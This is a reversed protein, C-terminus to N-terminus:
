SFSIVIVTVNDKGGAENAADVLTCCLRDLKSKRGMIELIQKESIMGVLGDTCLLLRDGVRLDFARAEPLPEGEMGVSRTVRGRAPHIRAEEETIEGSDILLQVISHDKTLRSLRGDRLLYARSDGMHGILAKADRILAVVITAGMGELGVQGETEKHVQLSLKAIADVMRHRAKDGALDDIDALNKRLMLPLTEVVIKSALEGAFEGGLGDSIIFLGRGPDAMWNDENRERVRGKDSFGAHEISLKM